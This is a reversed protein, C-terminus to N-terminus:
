FAGLQCKTIKIGLGECAGSVETKSIKLRSAIDWAIKCSLRNDILEGSIADKLEPDVPQVPGVIKKEPNYGFLGLQCKVLRINLTDAYNGIEQAQVGAQEAAEFAAPCALEENSSKELIVEKVSPDLQELLNNKKNKFGMM